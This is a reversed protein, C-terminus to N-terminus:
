FKIPEQYYEVYRTSSDAYKAHADIGQAVAKKYDQGPDNFQEFYKGPPYFAGNYFQDGTPIIPKLHYTLIKREYKKGQLWIVINGNNAIGILFILGPLEKAGSSYLGVNLDKKLSSEFIDNILKAPMPITDFYFAKERYSAYKLVLANPLREQEETQESDSDGWKGSGGNVHDRKIYVQNYGDGETIFQCDQVYMPYTPPATFSAAYYYRDGAHYNHVKIGTAIVMGVLIVIYIKNLLNHNKM